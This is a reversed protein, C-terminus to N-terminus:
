YFRRKLARDTPSAFLGCGELLIGDGACGGSRRMSKRDGFQASHQPSTPIHWPTRHNQASRRGIYMRSAKEAAIQTPTPESANALAILGTM